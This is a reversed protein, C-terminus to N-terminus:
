KKEKLNHNKSTLTVLYKAPLYIFFSTGSGPTSQVTIQGDHNEAIRKCLALGIGTGSYNTHTHLRQFITFAKEAYQQEFGIGNDSFQLEVYEGEPLNLKTKKDATIMRSEITIVPSKESFKLSNTILNLCLQHLQQRIGEIVPLPKSHIVAKKEDIFLELDNKISGIVENLDVPEFLQTDKDLRSYNLVSRILDSMRLASGTIKELYRKLKEPKDITGESLEAFIQIKRLPEQLDHSAVYAFQELSKNSKELEANLRELKLNTNMVNTIDHGIVLVRDVENNKNHMPIYFNELWRDSVMSKYGQQHIFEGKLAKQLNTLMAGGKLIPFLTLINKGIMEEKSHQFIVTGPKNIMEYELNKNFVAIVDVSADVITEILEKQQRLTLNAMSLESTREAVKEELSHNLALIRDNQSQIETLMTNFARALIGTEDNTTERARISYDKKTSIIQAKHALELIPTTFDKQLRRSLLYALGVSLLVFIITINGYINLRKYVAKIDSRLYLAGVRKDGLTVPQFGELYKKSYFFGQKNTSRGPLQNLPLTDPYWAFLKGSTDYLSAAIINKQRGLTQLVEEADQRNLFALSSSSNAAIIEGVTVMERKAQGRYSYYEYILSAIGMLVLVSGSTFMIVKLLKAQITSRKKM